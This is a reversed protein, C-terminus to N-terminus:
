LKGFLKWVIRWLECLSSEIFYKIFDSQYLVQLIDKHFDVSKKPSCCTSHRGQVVVWLWWCPLMCVYGSFPVISGRGQFVDASWLCVETILINHHIFLWFAAILETASPRLCSVLPSLTLMTWRLLQVERKFLSQVEVYKSERLTSLPFATASCNSGINVDGEQRPNLFLRPSMSTIPLFVLM